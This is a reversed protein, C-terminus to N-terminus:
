LWMTPRVCMRDFILSAVPTDVYTRVYSISRPLLMWRMVETGFDLGKAVHRPLQNKVGLYAMFAM